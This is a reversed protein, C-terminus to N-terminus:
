EKGSWKYKRIQEKTPNKNGFIGNIYKRVLDSMNKVGLGKEVDIM